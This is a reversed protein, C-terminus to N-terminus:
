NVALYNKIRQYTEKPLVNDKLLDEIETIHQKHNRYKILAKAYYINIYPHKALDNFEIRNINLKKISLSDVTIRNKIKNYIEEDIGYVELLQRKNYFGGLREKYKIIRGSFVEGIGRIQKLREADVANLEL